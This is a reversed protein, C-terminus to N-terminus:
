KPRRDLQPPIDLRPTLDLPTENEVAKPEDPVERSLMFRSDEKVCVFGAQDMATIIADIKAAALGMAPADKASAEIFATIKVAFGSRKSM